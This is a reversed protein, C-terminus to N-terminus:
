IIIYKSQYQKICNFSIKKKKKGFKKYFKFKLFFFINFFYKNFIDFSMSQFLKKNNIIMTITIYKM